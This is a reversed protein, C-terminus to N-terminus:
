MWAKPDTLSPFEGRHYLLPGDASAHDVAVGRGVLIMHDGAAHAQELACDIFVNAAALQPAGDPRARWGLGAFRDSDPQRGFRRALESHGHALFNVGFRGCTRIPALAPNAHDLCVLLLPPDLSVSCFANVTTGVPTEGSWSTVITVGSPFRGMAARWDAPAVGTM